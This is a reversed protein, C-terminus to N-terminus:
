RETRTAEKRDRRGIAYGHARLLGSCIALVVGGAFIAGLVLGVAPRPLAPTTQMGAVAQQPRNSTSTAPSSPSATPSTPTAAPRSSGTNTTAPDANTTTASDGTPQTTTGTTDSAPPTAPTTPTPNTQTQIATAAAVTQAKLAEPLAVMGLPLLGPELGQHQGPGSAYRLFTAYDTRAATDLTSPATVAYSLATLPYAAPDSAQPNATLVGPAPSPTMAALGALLSDTTPAVFQGAANLLQATPLSYRTATAADVVALLVQHGALQRPAKTSVPQHSISDVATNRALSDGRSASRGADHMDVAFPHSDSVCQQFSTPPTTSPDTLIDCSQDNRPFTSTPLALNKNNPNIVMGYPDPTGALFASADPDANIWSWLLSTVDAGNLQVLADPAPAQTDVFRKYEPNLNLFEPDTLLGLPNNKLYGSFAAATPVAARYSQTLLKAVLRPTLKMSTFRQGNFALDAAPADSSPQHDINFAIALASLGVPAYVLPPDATAQDPPIPNTVLAFQGSPVQSRAVDDTLQTYSFLTGGGACLAPQWSTVADVVLEHGIVAREPAGIPCPQGVPQFQLPVVIRHDWNSQSLPSSMLHSAGSKGDRISGNVEKDGRPVIVLWCSRGTTVGKTTVPDGCGLGAAQRVTEVEFFEEGTGDGHTRALPIENTVQSDFFDNGNATAAGTPRPKGVAWFPVYAQDLSGAAPKLTEQPDVLLPGYNIQRLGVWGDAAGGEVSAGFQCQTRDPGALDDGWCQMIQLYNNDFETNSVTPTAGTWSVRVTQNILDKTQSVTVKLSAFEGAGSVTVASGAGAGDVAATLAVPCSPLISIVAASVMMAVLGIVVHPPSV